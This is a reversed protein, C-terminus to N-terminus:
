SIRRCSPRISTFWSRVTSVASRSRCQPVPSSRWSIASTSSDSTGCRRKASATARQAHRSVGAPQVRRVEPHDAADDRAASAAPGGDGPQLNLQRRFRRQHRAPLVGQHHQRRAAVAVGHPRHRQRAHLLARVQRHDRNRNGGAAMGNYSTAVVVEPLNISPFLDVPM